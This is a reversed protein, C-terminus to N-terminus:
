ILGDALNPDIWTYDPAVVKILYDPYRRQIDVFELLTTMYLTKNVARIDELMLCYPQLESLYGKYTSTIFFPISFVVMFFCTMTRKITLLTIARELVTEKYM